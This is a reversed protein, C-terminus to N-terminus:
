SHSTLPNESKKPQKDAQTKKEPKYLGRAKEAIWGSSPKGLTYGEEKETLSKTVEEVIVCRIAVRVADDNRMGNTYLETRKV